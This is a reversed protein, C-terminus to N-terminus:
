VAKSRQWAASFSSPGALMAENRKEERLYRCRPIGTSGEKGRRKNILCVYDHGELRRELPGTLIRLARTFAPQRSERVGSEHHVTGTALSLPFLSHTYAVSSAVATSSVFDFSFTFVAVKICLVAIAGTKLGEHAAARQKRIHSM